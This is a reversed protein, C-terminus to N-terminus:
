LEGVDGVYGVHGQEGEKRIVAAVLAKPLTGPVQRAAM